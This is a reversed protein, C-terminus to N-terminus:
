IYRSVLQFKKKSKEFMGFRENLILAGSKHATVLNEANKRVNKRVVVGNM